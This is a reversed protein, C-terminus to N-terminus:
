FPKFTEDEIDIQLAELVRCIMGYFGVTVTLEVIQADNLFAKLATFTDDGARYGRTVEDTYRLVAREAADFVSAGPWNPLAEIQAQTMGTKLGIEVHKTFEYPAQAIDGVRLIALERLKPPLVGQFLIRNGLRFFDTFLAPAHAVAKYLNLVQHGKAELKEFFEAVRPDAQAKEILPVRAM